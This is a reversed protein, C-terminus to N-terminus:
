KLKAALAEYGGVYEGDSDWIQPVTRFGGDRLENLVKPNSINFETFPVGHALMLDKAKECWNCTDSTIIRYTM